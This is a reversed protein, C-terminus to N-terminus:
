NKNTEEKSDKDFIVMSETTLLTGAVSVAKELATRTVKTPDIIGLEIMDTFKESVVDYGVTNPTVERSLWSQFEDLLNAPNLGANIMIKNFPAKCANIVIEYGKLRDKSLDGGNVNKISHLLASGGGPVVGEEIAAKIALVADDTRDKKEKMEIESQAGVKIIAVGGLLKSLRSQLKGKEFDSESKEKQKRIFEVRESISDESGAGGILATKTKDSVVRDCTGLHDYSMDDLTTGFEPSILTGGTLAAIDKLIETRDSGFGPAKVALVKLGARAANVVMTALAQGEVNHAIVLIADGKGHAQELLPVVDDMDSISGDYTLVKVDTLICALKDKDNMFFHSLYGKDFDLGEVIELETENSTGEQVTIIGDRGVEDIAKAIMSGIESDNNASITAVAELFENSDIKKSISKLNKVVDVVAKDMGRKLEIPNSGNAIMQFGQNFISQALITSTTTGDGAVDATQQATEKIAESGLNKASDAFEISKAVTVGDKTIHPARDEKEIIVNRGRPGLTGGVADALENVGELLKARADDSSIVIKYM